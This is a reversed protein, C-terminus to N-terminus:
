FKNKRAKIYNTVTSSTAGKLLEKNMTHGLPDIIFSVIDGTKLKRSFAVKKGNVLVGVLDFLLKKNLKYLLDVPTSGKPM